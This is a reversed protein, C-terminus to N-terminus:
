RYRVVVFPANGRYGDDLTTLDNSWDGDVEQQFLFRMTLSERSASLHQARIWDTLDATHEGLAKSTIVDMTATGPLAPANHEQADLPGAGHIRQAQLPGIGFESYIDWNPATDIGVQWIHLTASLIQAGAPIASMDFAVYGRAVNLAATNGVRIRGPRVTLGGVHYIYGTREGIAPLTVEQEQPVQQAQPLPAANRGGGGGCATLSAALGLSLVSPLTFRM